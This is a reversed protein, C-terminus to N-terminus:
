KSDSSRVTGAATTILTLAATLVAVAVPTFAQVMPILSADPLYSGLFGNFSESLVPITGLTLAIGLLTFLLAIIANLVKAFPKVDRFGAIASGAQSGILAMAPISVLGIGPLYPMFQEGLGTVDIAIIGLPILLMILRVVLWGPRRDDRVTAMSVTRGSLASVLVLPLLFSLSGIVLFWPPMSSAIRLAPNGAAFYADAEPALLQLLLSGGGLLAGIGLGIVVWILGPDGDDKRTIHNIAPYSAFLMVCAIPLAAASVTILDFDVTQSLSTTAIIGLGMLSVLGVGAASAGALVLLKDRFLSRPLASIVFGLLMTVGAILISPHANSGLSQKITSFWDSEAIETEYGSASSLLIITLISLISISALFVMLSGSLKGMTEFAAIRWSNGTITSRRRALHSMVWAVLVSVATALMGPLGVMETILEPLPNALGSFVASSLPIVVSVVAAIFLVFDWARHRAVPEFSEDDLSHPVALQWGKKSEDTVNEEHALGDSYAPSTEPQDTSEPTSEESISADLEVQESGVAEIKQPEQPSNMSVEMIEPAIDGFTEKLESLLRVADEPLSRHIVDLFALATEADTQRLKMQTELLEIQETSSMKNGDGIVANIESQSLSHRKPITNAAPQAPKEFPQSTEVAPFFNIQENESSSDVDPLHPTFDSNEAPPVFSSRRNPTEQGDPNTEM